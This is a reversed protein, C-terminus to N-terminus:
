ALPVFRQEGEQWEEMQMKGLNFYWANLSLSGESVKHQIWPFTNLNDRSQLVSRRGCACYMDEATADPPLAGIADRVAPEAVRLWEGLPGRPWTGTRVADTAGQIGACRSHGMLLIHRVDLSNVAFDLAATTEELGGDEGNKPVLNAVNRVVFIDGPNALTVLAPDVRSDCCAILLIKPRQGAKVLKDFQGTADSRKERLFRSVGDRLRHIEQM